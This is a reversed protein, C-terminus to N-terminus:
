VDFAIRAGCLVYPYKAQYFNTFSPRALRAPTVYSAGTIILHQGDFFDTSYGPYLKGAVFGEHADLKTSTWLWVGGDSAGPLRSGPRSPSPPLPHLNVLGINSTPADVPNAAHFVALEERTPLRGGNAKAYAALQVASGTVPWELAHTMAVEGYLTKVVIDDVSSTASGTLSRWSSPFLADTSEVTSLFVLYEKNRVPLASLKFAAVQVERKPAELDWGFAHSSEFKHTENGDEDENDDLGILVTCSGFALPKTLSEADDAAAERAWARGLSVFDPVQAGIPARLQQAAQLAIYVLTEFHMAEHEFVMMLIRALRRTMRGDKFEEEYIRLVRARVRDQYETIADLSPWQDNQPAASHWHTIAKTEVNPDIGREFLDAFAAPEVLPEKFYRSLHIATFCPLHGLYFLPIHRLPIPKTMLLDQPMIDRVLMDWSAWQTKWEDVSPLGYANPSPTVGFQQLSPHNSLSFAITPREVLYLSYKQTSDSWRQVVRMGAAHFLALAENRNYKYSVEIQMLEDKELVVDERGPIPVRLKDVKCRIYAEHRGEKQNYWNEYEFNASCLPSGNPYDGKATNTALARGAQDVGELIFRRTVGEPDNYASEITAADNCGDIGILMTEGPRLKVNKLFLCAERRSFNGISSGLWMISSTRAHDQSSSYRALHDIGDDYLGHLGGIKVRPTEDDETKVAAPEQEALSNLSLELSSKELDLAEYDISRFGSLKGAKLLESFASLLHRTKDLSGSGLEIIVAEASPAGNVEGSCGNVGHNHKGVGFDGWKERIPSGKPEGNTQLPPAQEAEAHDMDHNHTNLESSKKSQNKALAFDSPLGLMRAAIEDGYNQLIELECAFLYYSKCRAIIESYIGLGADSYLYQTPISRSWVRDDQGQRRSATLGDILQERLHSPQQASKLPLIRAAAPPPLASAM